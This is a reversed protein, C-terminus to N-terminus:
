AVLVFHAKAGSYHVLVFFVRMRRRGCSRATGCLRRALGLRSRFEIVKKALQLRLHPTRLRTGICNGRGHFRHLAERGVGVGFVRCLIGGLFNIQFAQYLTVVRIAAIRAAPICGRVIEAPVIRVVVDADNEAAYAPM